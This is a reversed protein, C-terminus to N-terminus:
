GSFEESLADALMARARALRARLTGGPLRLAAAVEKQTLGAFYHLVVPDRYIPPLARVADWVANERERVLLSHEAPIAEEPIAEEPIAEEPIAEVTIERQDRRLRDIAGNRAARLLWARAQMPALNGVLAWRELAKLFVSQVVEAATDRNSSIGYATWYVMAAHRAYLAEFQQEM